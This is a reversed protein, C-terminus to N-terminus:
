RDNSALKLRFPFYNWNQQGEYHISEVMINIVLDTQDTNFLEKLIAEHKKM